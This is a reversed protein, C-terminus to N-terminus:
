DLSLFSLSPLSASRKQNLVTEKEKRELLDNVGLRPKKTSGPHQHQAPKRHDQRATIYSLNRRLFVQRTLSRIALIKYLSSPGSFTTAFLVINDHPLHPPAPSSEAASLPSSSAAPTQGNPLPARPPAANSSHPPYRAFPKPSASRSSVSPSPSDASIEIAAVVGGHGHHRHHHNHHNHHHSHLHEDEETEDGDEGDEGDEDEEGEEGDDGEGEEDDENGVEGEEGEEGEEGDEEDEEGHLHGDDSSGGENDIQHPPM